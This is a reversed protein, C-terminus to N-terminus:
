KDVKFDAQNKKTQEEQRKIYESKSAERDKALQAELEAQKAVQAEEFKKRDSAVKAKAMEERAVEAKTKLRVLVPHGDSEQYRIESYQEHTNTLKAEKLMKKQEVIDKDPGSILVWDGDREKALIVATRPM